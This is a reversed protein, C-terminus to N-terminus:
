LVWNEWKQMCKQWFLARTLPGHGRIPGPGGWPFDQIWWQFAETVLKKLSERTLLIGPGGTPFSNNLKPVKFPHSYYVPENPDKDKFFEQLNDVVLYTDSDVKIFFDYDNIYNDYLYQHALRCKKSIHLRVETGPFGKTPFEKNEESSVVLLKDCRRGWTAKQHIVRRQLLKPDALIWCM